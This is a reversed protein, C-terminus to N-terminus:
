ATVLERIKIGAEVGADLFVLLLLAAVLIMATAGIFALLERRRKGRHASEWVMSVSGLVPLGTARRLSTADVFVPKLQQLLFAVGGAAGLGVAFTLLLLLDRKPAVPELGARPPEMTEFTVGDWGLRKRRLNEQEYKARMDTYVSRIQDYDRTLEALEAEVKPIIDIKAQLDAVKAQATGLRRQLEAININTENLAIQIEQYVPNNSPIGAGDFDGAIGSQREERQRKLQELQDRAAIVDPWKETYTTLLSQIRSELQTIRSDLDSQPGIGSVGNEGDSMVPREGKLQRSLATRRDMLVSLEARIQRSAEQASQLTEFYGRGEGPLLGVNQRKFDALLQEQESLQAGYDAIGSELFELADDSGTARGSVVDDRFTDLIADVVRLSMDRDVDRYSIRFITETGPRTRGSRLAEIQIKEALGRILGEKQEDTTARLDLDTERAVKRLVPTLLMQQRVKAVLSADNTNANMVEDLRTKGVFFIAESEYEDPLM